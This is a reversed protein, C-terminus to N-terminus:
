RTPYEDRRILALSRDVLRAVVDDPRSTREVYVLTPMNVPEMPEEADLDANCQVIVSEGGVTTTGLWYDGGRYASEHAVFRVSLAEEVIVKTPDFDAYSGYVLTV